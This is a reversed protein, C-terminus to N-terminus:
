LFKILLRFDFIVYDLVTVDSFFVSGFLTIIIKSKKVLLCQMQNVMFLMAFIVVPTVLHLFVSSM